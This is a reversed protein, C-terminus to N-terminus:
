TVADGRELDCLPREREPEWRGLVEHREEPAEVPRRQLRERRELAVGALRELEIQDREGVAEVPQAAVRDRDRRGVQFRDRGPASCPGATCPAAGPPPPRKCPPTLR